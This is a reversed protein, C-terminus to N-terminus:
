KNAQISNLQKLLYDIDTSFKPHIGHEYRDLYAQCETVIRKENKSIISEILQAFQNGSTRYYMFYRKTVPFMKIYHLGHHHYQKTQPRPPLSFYQSKPTSASINSRLPVAFDYHHEKYKLRVVLVYPRESKHLIQTDDAYLGLLQGSIKVLKM